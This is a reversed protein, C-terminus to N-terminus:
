ETVVAHFGPYDAGCKELRVKVIGAGSELPIEFQWNDDFRCQVRKGDVTAFFDRGFQRCGYFRIVGGEPPRKLELDVFGNPFVKNGALRVPLGDEAICAHSAHMYRGCRWDDAIGGCIVCDVTDVKGHSYKQRSQYEAQYEAILLQCVSALPKMYVDDLSRAERFINHYSADAASHKGADIDLKEASLSQLEKLANEVASRLGSGIPDGKEMDDFYACVCRVYARIARSAAAANHWLKKRWVYEAEYGPEVPLSDILSSYKDAIAVAEDKEALIADRGPTRDRSMISWVGAGLHLDIDNKFLALIYSAKIIRLDYGVPNQHFMVNHAIFHCREIFDFGALGMELFAARASPPYHKDAWEQRIQKATVSPDDIAREYAYLNIEYRDFISNGVRDLRIAYRDVDKKQGYRVYEVIKAVNESPLNGAGLFEGLGDCEASMTTGPIRRLFPNNSLFPDFDYPTIKTEIEFGSKEAALAAGALIDEYDEAISGFSRLIFRKGRPALEDAFVRVIHAVTKDAPFREKNSNHIVSYDAETLTLVVGDLGPLVKFTQDLKYKLLGTFADGLLDFEGNADLLEPLDDLLGSPVMVERHWLYVPRQISHAAEIIKGFKERNDLIEARDLKAAATPYDEYLLFSDLGGAARHCPGCIEFSDMRYDAARKVVRLMYDPDFGTPHMLSWTIEPRNM